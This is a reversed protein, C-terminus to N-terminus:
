ARAGHEPDGPHVHNRWEFVRNMGRGPGTLGALTSSKPEAYPRRRSRPAHIAAETEYDHVMRGPVVRESPRISRASNYMEEEMTHRRLMPIPPPPGMALPATLPPPPPGMPSATMPGLPSVTHPPTPGNMGSRSPGGPSSRFESFREALRQGMSDRQNMTDQPLGRARNVGSMYDTPTPREFAAPPTPAPPVPPGSVFVDDGERHYDDSAYNGITTNAGTLEGYGRDVVDEDGYSSFRHTDDDRNDQFRRVLRDEYDQSRSRPSPGSRLAPRMGRSTTTLDLRELRQIVAPIQADPLRDADTTDYNFWPCDCNKWKVGCIMCFQAGCRCTMHNCGEELEIMHNCKYCQQWGAEKAQELFRTTDEDDPCDRSSHWKGKCSCCVDTGCVRCSGCKRSGRRYIDSPRIWAGCRRSSCYIRHRTSYELYKRNWKMKFDSSLLREVYKLPIVDSTCCRPPMSQPDTISLQFRWELCSECIRHGCKLKPVKSSRHEDMCIMCQAMKVPKEPSRSRVSRALRQGMFNPSHKNSSSASHSTVQSAAGSLTHSRQVVRSERYVVDSQHRRFPRSPGVNSDGRYPLTGYALRKSSAPPKSVMGYTKAPPRHQSPRRVPSHSRQRSFHRESASRSLRSRHRLPSRSREDLSQRSQRPTHVTSEDDDEEVYVIEKIKRRRKPMKKKKEQKEHKERGKERKAREHRRQGNEEQTSVSTASEEDTETDTSSGSSTSSRERAYPRRPRSPQAARPSRGRRPSVRRGPTPLETEGFDDYDYDAAPYRGRRYTETVPARSLVPVPMTEVVPASAGSSNRSTRSRGPSSTIEDPGQILDKPRRYPLSDFSTEGGARWDHDAVPLPGPPYRRRTTRRHWDEVDRYAM